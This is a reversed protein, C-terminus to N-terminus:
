CAESLFISGKVPVIWLLSGKGGQDAGKGGGRNKSERVLRQGKTYNCIGRVISESSNKFLGIGKITPM